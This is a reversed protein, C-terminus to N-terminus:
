SSNSWNTGASKLNKFGAAGSFALNVAKLDNTATRTMGMSGEANIRYKPSYMISRDASAASGLGTTRWHTHRDITLKSCLRVSYKSGAVHGDTACKINFAVVSPPVTASSAHSNQSDKAVKSSAAKRGSMISRQAVKIGWNIGM